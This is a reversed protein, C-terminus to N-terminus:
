SELEGTGENGGSMRQSGRSVLSSHTAQCKERFAKVEDNKSMDTMSMQKFEEAEIAKIPKCRFKL